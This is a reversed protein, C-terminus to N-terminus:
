CQSQAEVRPFDMDTNHIPSSAIKSDGIGSLVTEEAPKAPLAVPEKSSGVDHGHKGNQSTEHKSLEMEAPEPHGGNTPSVPMDKVIDMPESTPESIVPQPESVATNENLKLSSNVTKTYMPESSEVGSDVHGSEAPVLQSYTVEPTQLVKLNSNHMDSQVQETHCPESETQPESLLFQTDSTPSTHHLDAESKETQNPVPPLQNTSINGSIIDIMPEPAPTEFVQMVEDQEVMKLNKLLTPPQNEFAFQPTAKAVLKGVDLSTSSGFNPMNPMQVMTSAPQNEPRFDTYPQQNVKMGGMSMDAEIKSVNTLPVTVLSSESLGEFGLKQEPAIKGALPSGNGNQPMNNLPFVISASPTSLTVPASSQLVPPVVQNPSIPVKNEQQLPQDISSVSRSVSGNAQRTPNVAPFPSERFKYSKVGPAVDNLATVPSVKGPLFVVGRLLTSSNGIRVSLLYGSDFNGEIVGSVEQGVMNEGVDTSQSLEAAQTKQIDDSAPTVALHPNEKVVNKEKRPRGRKRKVPLDSPTSTGIM